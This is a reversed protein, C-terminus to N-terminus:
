YVEELKRKFDIFMYICILIFTFIYSMILILLTDMTIVHISLSKVMVITYILIPILLMIMFLLIQMNQIFSLQKRKYGLAKLTKIESTLTQNYINFKLLFILFMMILSIIYCCVMSIKLEIDNISIMSVLLIPTVVCNLSIISSLFSSLNMYDNMIFLLTRSKMLLKDHLLHYLFPILYKILLVEGFMSGLFYVYYMTSDKSTIMQTISSYVFASGLITYFGYRSAKHTYQHINLHVKDNLYDVMQISIKNKVYINSFLVCVIIILLFMYYFQLPSYVLYYNLSRSRYIYNLLIIEGFGIINGIVFSIVLISVFQIINYKMIKKSSSGCLLLIAIDQRKQQVYYNNVIIIFICNLLVVIFIIMTSLDFFSFQKIRDQITVYMSLFVYQFSALLSLIFMSIMFLRKNGKTTKLIFSIM